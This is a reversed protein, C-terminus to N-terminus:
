IHQTLNLWSDHAKRFAHLYVNQVSLFKPLTSKLEMVVLNVGPSDGKLMKFVDSTGNIVDWYWM